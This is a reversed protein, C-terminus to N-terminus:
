LDGVKDYTMQAIVLLLVAGAAKRIVPDPLIQAVHSGIALGVWTFVNLKLAFMWNASRWYAAGVVQNPMSEAVVMLAMM